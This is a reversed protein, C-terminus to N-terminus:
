ITEIKKITAKIVHQKTQIDIHDGQELERVDEIIVTDKRILAYGKNLVKQPHLQELTRDIYKLQQKLGSIKRHVALLLRQYLQDTKEEFQMNHEVFYHAVKTPTKLQRCMMDAISTNRDHGIGTFVPVPCGAIAECVDYNDFPKFDTNSGGGRVIALADYRQPHSAVQGIAKQLQTAATDGQVQTELIDLRFAYGYRNEEIEKTFDRLGDSGPPAIVALRKVVSPLQLSQNFTFLEGDRSGVFSCEAVLRQITRQRELELNGITHATDIDLIELSLGFRPHYKVLVDCIVELGDTFKRGTQQEFRAISGYGTNWFVAKLETQITDGQKELLKLFCWKKQPYKKVDTIEGKVTLVQRDFYVEIADAIATTVASLPLVQKQMLCFYPLQLM